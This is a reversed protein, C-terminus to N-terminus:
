EDRYATLLGDLRAIGEGLERLRLAVPEVPPLDHEVAHECGLRPETGEEVRGAAALAVLIRRAPAAVFDFDVSGREV